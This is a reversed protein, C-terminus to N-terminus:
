GRISHRQAQVVMLGLGGFALCILLAFIPASSGNSGSDTSTVPLTAAASPTYTAGEVQQTPEVSPSATVGGVEETPSATSTATPEETPAPAQYTVTVSTVNSDIETGPDFGAAQAHNTVSGAAVDAQVVTYGATCTTEKNPALQAAAASCDVSAIKDDTVAFPGDLTVNGTNTLTYTYTIKDGVNTFTAKDATKALQLAPAQAAQITLEATNSILTQVSATADNTVNGADVDAQTVTYTATCTVYSGTSPSEATGTNPSLGTDDPGCDFATGGGIKDDSVTFQAPGLNQNGANVITYTYTITQGAADFSSVDASKALSIQYTAAIIMDTVTGSQNNYNGTTDTFAWPDDTYVGGNTHTTGSLDLGSLTEDNVGTCPGTATHASGDWIVNYGTVSCTADAKGVTLTQSVDDAAAWFNSTGSVQAEHATVTCSGAANISLKNGATISCAGSATFTISVGSGTATTTASLTIPSDGYKPAAIAPFTIVPKVLYGICVFSSDSGSLAVSESNDSYNIDDYCRLSAFGAKSQDTAMTVWLGTGRALSVETSNLTLTASGAAGSTTVTGVSSGSGGHASDQGNLLTFAWDGTYPDCVLDTTASALTANNGSNPLTTNLQSNHGGNDNGGWGGYSGTPNANAPVQTYASCLRTYFNATAPQLSITFSASDVHLSGSTARLTFTGATNISLNNFTAVGASAAHTLTGSLTGTGSHIAVTVNATSSTLNGYQDEILVTVAPSITANVVADSPQQGFVLQAANGATITFTNSTATLGDGSASLSYGAGAKTISLASFTAVGNSANVTRTGSLTGGTPGTALSLTVSGSFPVTNGNADEVTVRVTPLTGAASSSPQTTFVLTAAPGATINFQSSTAHTLTGSSASLTYGTAAKDISLGTFTAVGNVASVTKTGSLTGSGPNTGIAVTVSATSGIVTNGYADQVTVAVTFPTGATTNAPQTTFALKNATAASITFQNSTASALTGSSATITYTGAQDISLGSFTAIGNHAAVTKTGALTGSTPALSITVSASSGTGSTITNGAADQVAVVVSFTSHATTNSPQTTFVLKAAAGLAINFGNSTAATLSGSTARIVYGNGPRNISLNSFTAVGNAANVTTTGSLTGSGPNTSIAMTVAASSNAVIRNGSDLVDVTVAPTISAGASTNTPQQVFALKAANGFVTITPPTDIHALGHSGDQSSTTFTYSNATTPATVAYNLTFSSNRGCTMAVTITRNGTGGFTPAGANCHNGSTPISVNSASPTTWETPVQVTIESGSGFASSGDNTFVFAFTNASGAAVASPTVTMTGDGDNAASVFSATGLILALVAGATVALRRPGKLTALRLAMM